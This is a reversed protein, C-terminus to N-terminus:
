VAREACGVENILRERVISARLFSHAEIGTNQLETPLMDWTLGNENAVVDDSNIAEMGEAFHPLEKFRGNAIIYRGSILANVFDVQEPTVIRSTKARIELNYYRDPRIAQKKKPGIEIEIDGAQDIFYLNEQSLLAYGDLDECLLFHIKVSGVEKEYLM